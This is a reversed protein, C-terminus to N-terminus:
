EYVVTALIESELILCGQTGNRSGCKRATYYQVFCNGERHM